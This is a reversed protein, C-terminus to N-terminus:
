QRRSAAVHDIAYRAQDLPSMLKLAESQAVSVQVSYPGDSRSRGDGYTTVISFDHQRFGDLVPGRKGTLFSTLSTRHIPQNDDVQDASGFLEVVLSFVKSYSEDGEVVRGHARRRVAQGDQGVTVLDLDLDQGGDRETLECTRFEQRVPKTLIRPVTLAFVASAGAASAGSAVFDASAGVAGVIAASGVLFARRTSTEVRPASTSGTEKSVPGKKETM